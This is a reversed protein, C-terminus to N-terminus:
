LKIINIIDGFILKNLNVKMISAFVAWSVSSRLASHFPPPPPIGLDPFGRVGVLAFKGICFKPFTFNSGGLTGTINM